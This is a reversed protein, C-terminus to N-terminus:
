EDSGGATLGLAATGYPNGERGGDRWLDRYAEQYGEDWAEAKAQRVVEALWLDFSAGREAHWRKSQNFVYHSRVQETSPMYGQGTM